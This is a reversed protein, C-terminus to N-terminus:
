ARVPHLLSTESGHSNSDVGPDRGLVFPLIWLVLHQLQPSPALSHPKLDHTFVDFVLVAPLTGFIPLLERRHKGACRPALEIEQENPREIPEAALAHRRSNAMELPEVPM